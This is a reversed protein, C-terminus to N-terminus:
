GVADEDHAVALDFAFQGFVLHGLGVDECESGFFFGVGQDSTCVM